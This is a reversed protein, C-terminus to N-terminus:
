RSEARDIARAPLAPDLVSRKGRGVHASTRLGNLEGSIHRM